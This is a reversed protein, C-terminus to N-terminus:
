KILYSASVNVNYKMGSTRTRMVGPDEPELPYVGSEDVYPSGEEDSPQMQDDHMWVSSEFGILPLDTNLNLVKAVRLAQAKANAAASALVQNRTEEPLAAYFGFSVPAKSVGADNPDEGDVIAGEDAPAAEPDNPRDVLKALIIKQQLDAADAVIARMDKQKFAILARLVQRARLEPPPAVLKSKKQLRGGNEPEAAKPALTVVSVADKELEAGFGQLKKVVDGREKDLAALSARADAGKGELVVIVELSTPAIDASATAHVTIANKPADAALAPLAAAPLTAIAACLALRYM